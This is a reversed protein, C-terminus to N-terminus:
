MKQEGIEKDIDEKEIGFKKRIWLVTRECKESLKKIIKYMANIEIEQQKVKSKLETNEKELLEYYQIANKAKSLELKLLRNNSQLIKNEEIIPKVLKEEVTRPTFVEQNSFEKVNTYIKEKIDEKKLEEKLQKTAYFNTLKKLDDIKIHEQEKNGRELDFGKNKIYKYFDDQLLSYSNKGKWFESASIKRIKDKNKDLSSIVPVYVLHMHPTEEDVHVVASIINEEGLGKYNRIFNYSELFYRKTEEKGIRNFFKNDSTVVFECAYISNKHIQGKLNNEEKLRKFEKLYSNERPKKLHYNEKSKNKNINKNSYDKKQRENHPSLQILQEKTYKENRIIAYSM